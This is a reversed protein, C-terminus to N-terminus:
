VFFHQNKEKSILSNVPISKHLLFGLLYKSSDLKNMSNLWPTGCPETSLVLNKEKNKIM